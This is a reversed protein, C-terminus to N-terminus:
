GHIRRSGLLAEQVLLKVMRFPEALSDLRNEDVERQGEDFVHPPAHV